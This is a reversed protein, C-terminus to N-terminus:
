PEIVDLDFTVPHELSVQVGPSTPLGLLLIKQGSPIQVRLDLGGPGIVTRTPTSYYDGYSVEFRVAASAHVDIQLRQGGPIDIWKCPYCSHNDDFDAFFQEEPDNDSLTIQLHSPGTIAIAQQIRVDGISIDQGPPLVIWREVFGDKRLTLSRGAAVEFLGNGDTLGLAGGSGTLNLFPVPVGETDLVRGTVRRQRQLEVRLVPGTVATYASDYGAKSVIVTLNRGTPAFTVSFSGSEDSVAESAGAIQIRAGSVPGGGIEMVTGTVTVTSSPAAPPPSPTPASPNGTSGSHGCAAVCVIALGWALFQARM